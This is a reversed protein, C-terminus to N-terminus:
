FGRLTEVEAELEKTTTDSVAIAAYEETNGAVMKTFAQIFNVRDPHEFTSITESDLAGISFSLQAFMTLTQSFTSSRQGSANNVTM